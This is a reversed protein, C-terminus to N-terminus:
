PTKIFASCFSQYLTPPTMINHSWFIRVVYKQLSIGLHRQVSLIKCRRQDGLLQSVLRGEARSAMQILYLQVQACLLFIIRPLSCLNWHTFNYVDWGVEQITILRRWISAHQWKCNPLGEEGGSKGPIWSMLHGVWMQKGLKGWHHTDEKSCGELSNLNGRCCSLVFRAETHSVKMKRSCHTSLFFMAPQCARANTKFVAIFFSCLVFFVLIFGLFEHGWKGWSVGVARLCLENCESCSHVNFRRKNSQPSADRNGETQCISERVACCFLTPEWSVPYLNWVYIHTHAHTYLFLYYVCM